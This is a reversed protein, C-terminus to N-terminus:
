ASSLIREERQNTYRNALITDCHSRPLERSAPKRTDPCGSARGYGGAWQRAGWSPGCGGGAEEQRGEGCGGHRSRWWSVMAPHM